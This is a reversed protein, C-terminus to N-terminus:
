KQVSQLPGIRTVSGPCDMFHFGPSSAADTVSILPVKASIGAADEDGVGDAIRRPPMWSVATLGSSSGDAVPSRAMLFPSLAESGFGFLLGISSGSSIMIEGPPSSVISSMPTVGRVDDFGK